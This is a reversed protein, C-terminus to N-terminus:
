PLHYLTYRGVANLPNQSQPRAYHYMIVLKPMTELNHIVEDPHYSQIVVKSTSTTILNLRQQCRTLLMEPKFHHSTIFKLGIKAPVSTPTSAPASASASTSASASARLCLVRM